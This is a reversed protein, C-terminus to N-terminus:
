HTPSRSCEARRAHDISADLAEGSPFEPGLGHDEYPLDHLGGSDRLWRYREADAKDETSCPNSLAKERSVEAHKVFDAQRTKYFPDKGKCYERHLSACVEWAIAAEKWGERDQSKDLSEQLAARGAQYGASFAEEACLVDLSKAYKGTISLGISTAWEEFAAREQQSALFMLEIEAQASLWEIGEPTNWWHNQNEM